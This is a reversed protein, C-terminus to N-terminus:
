HRSRGWFTPKHEEFAPPRQYIISAAKILISATLAWITYCRKETEYDFYHVLFREGMLEIKEERRKENKLFMELPVDFVSEVESPNLVPSFSSIDWVIGIVPFVTIHRKTYFPHLISVIEVTSPDLGIEENAERLATAAHTDDGEEWKGGPLAVEGSHSSITSSRQTLIVRLHGEKGQFLCILVAARNTGLEGAIRSYNTNDHRRLREAISRLDSTNSSSMM